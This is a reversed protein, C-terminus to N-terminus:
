ITFHWTSHANKVQHRGGGSGTTNEAIYEFVASMSTRDLTWLDAGASTSRSLM